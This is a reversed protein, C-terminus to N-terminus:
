FNLKKRSFSTFTLDLNQTFFPHLFHTYIIPTFFNIYFIWFTQHLFHTYIIPTFILTFLPHLFHTHFILTFLPHLFYGVFNTGNIIKQFSSRKLTCDALM